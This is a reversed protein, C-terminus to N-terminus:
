RKTINRGKRKLCVNCAWKEDPYLWTLADVRWVKRSAEEKTERSGEKGCFGCIKSDIITVKEEGIKKRLALEATESLNIGVRKAKEVVEHDINLSTIKKMM